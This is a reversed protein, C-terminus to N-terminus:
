QNIQHEVKSRKVPANATMNMALKTDRGVYVVVGCCWATNRISSGRLVLNKADAPERLGGRLRFLGNFENTFANPADCTMSGVCESVLSLSRFMRRAEPLAQKVKLASEGDLQSTEVHVMGDANSSAVLLIDAPVEEGRSLYIISGATFNEWPMLELGIMCMSYDLRVTLKLLYATQGAISQGNRLIRGSESATERKVVVRCLRKNVKADNKYRRYDEIADKIMTLSLVFVLPAITAWESTPSLDSPLMQCVGVLLFWLNAVRHFQEWLSLPVFTLLRYKTSTI